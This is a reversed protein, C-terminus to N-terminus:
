TQFLGHGERMRMKMLRDWWVLTRGKLKYAVFKVKIEKPFEIYEFLRDVETLWVFFREINLDGSFNPIDVKLKYEDNSQLKTEM